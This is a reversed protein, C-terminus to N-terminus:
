ELDKGGDEVDDEDLEKDSNQDINTVNFVKEEVKTTNGDPVIYKVKIGKAGDELEDELSNLNFSVLGKGAYGTTTGNLNQRYELHIYGDEPSETLTNRVLSVRTPKAAPYPYYFSVNLYGGGIWMGENLKVPDNGIEEENAETLNEIQKTLINDIRYFKVALDYKGYNDQLPNFLAWVRQGDVPQYGYPDNTVPVITTGRDSRIYYINGDIRITGIAQAIDGISYGDDDDCSQLVPLVIAALLMWM